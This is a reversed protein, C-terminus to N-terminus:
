CLGTPRRARRRSGGPPVSHRDAPSRPPAYATCRERSVGQRSRPSVRPIIEVEFVWRLPRWPRLPFVADHLDLWFTGGGAAIAMGSGLIISQLNAPTLTLNTTLTLTFTYGTADITRCARNSAAVNCNHGSNADFFVDDASTPVSSGGGGGSTTSWNSTSGWLDDVGGNVYFRNAM